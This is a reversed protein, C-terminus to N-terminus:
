RIVTGRRNPRQREGASPSSSPRVTYARQTATPTPLFQNDRWNTAREDFGLSALGLPLQTPSEEVDEALVEELRLPQLVKGVDSAFLLKGVHTWHYGRAGGDLHSEM